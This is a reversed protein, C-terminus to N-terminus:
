KDRKWSSKTTEQLHTRLEMLRREAKNVRKEMEANKKLLGQYTALLDDEEEKLNVGYM